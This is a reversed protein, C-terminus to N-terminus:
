ERNSREFADLTEIEDSVTTRDTSVGTTLIFSDYKVAYVDMEQGKESYWTDVVTLLGVSHLNNIHYMANQVSEGVTEAVASAPKPDEALKALITRASEPALADFVPDAHRLSIRVPDTDYEPSSQVPLLGSTDPM